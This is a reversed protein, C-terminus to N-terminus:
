AELVSYADPARELLWPEVVGLGRVPRQWMAQAEYRGENNGPVCLAAEEGLREILVADALVKGIPGIGSLREALSVTPGLMIGATAYVQGYCVGIRVEAELDDLMTTTDSESLLLATEAGARATPTVFSVDSNRMHFFRAGTIASVQSCVRRMREILTILEEENLRKSIRTFGVIELVGIAMAGPALDEMQEPGELAAVKIELSSCEVELEDARLKAHELESRLASLENELQAKQRILEDREETVSDIKLEIIADRHQVERLQIEIDSLLTQRDQLARTLVEIQIASQQSKRDAEALRMQTVELLSAPNGRAEAAAHHQDRLLQLTEEQISEGRHSAVHKVLDLIFEWPPLRSGNLYRSIAGADRSCRVSYRRVSIGLGNFLVRLSDALNRAEVSLEGDLPRLPAPLNEDTM